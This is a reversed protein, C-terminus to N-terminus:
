FSAQAVGALKNQIHELYHESHYFGGMEENYRVIASPFDSYFADVTRNGEVPTLSVFCEYDPYTVLDAPLSTDLLVLKDQYGDKHIRVMFTNDIDLDLEFKGNKKVAVEGLREGDKFLEIRYDNIRKGDVLVEGHVPLYWGQAQDREDVLRRGQALAASGVSLSLCTLLIYRNKM